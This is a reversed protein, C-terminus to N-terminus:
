RFDAHQKLLERLPASKKSFNDVYCALYMMLDLFHQLDSKSTPPLIAQLDKVQPDAQIGQAGYVNRFSAISSRKIFCKASNFMLRERQAAFLLDHLNWDHEQEAAKYVGCKTVEDKDVGGKIVEDKDVGGKIVEDKEVGGKIVEDKCVGGKIVEDKYVGGKIVEDKYVGGKIVEDKDVGGKIVEDKVGCVCVGCSM